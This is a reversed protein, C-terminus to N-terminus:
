VSMNIFSDNSYPCSPAISNFQTHVFSYSSPTAFWHDDAQVTFEGDIQIDHQEGDININLPPADIRVDMQLLYM